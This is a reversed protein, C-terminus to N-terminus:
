GTTSRWHEWISRYAQEVQRAFRPADMLPSAKMRARLTARLEALRPLNEALEVALRVYDEESAAAWEGLGVTSLLSLGARAAPMKGPLTLVPTGMWLADCTTTIGNYPFPDLGIDIGHYLNLYEARSVRESFELREAAIGRAGFFSQVRERAEGKPCLIVLRSGAVADLVRAWLALVGDNVKAFNNLSGFTVCNSSLAPLANVEPSVSAPDYCCWSDPLRVLEETSWLPEQGAPEMNADTLRYGISRLGTSGPYALWAVQVPAPQRAFVLLRNRGMHMTLDVLVDIKEDQIRGALQEDSLARTDHWFDVSKKLRATIADPSQVDSYAHIECMSHDHAEFLPIIFNCEAQAYFNPSVYGIKLRRSSGRDNGHPHVSDRLPAAHQREWRACEGAIADATSGPHFHLTYILNSHLWPHEPHLEIARRYAAIAEDLEGRDKLATGLNNHADPFNPELRLAHRFAAIAEDLQGQEFLACALNYSSEPLDPQLEVVRRYAAIAEDLRGSKSLVHALYLHAKADGPKLELARRYATISEDFEDREGLANALNFHAEPFHPHLELARRCAAIAEDLRGQRALAAGLNNHAAAYDPALELARRFSAIAEDLRGMGRCAEGLNSHAVPDNPDLAIAQRIWEVALDDRDTQHAIVGLFHRAGAHNPQAALIQRYLGEAEALRGAQHHQQAIQFAQPITV